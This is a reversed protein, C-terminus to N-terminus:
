DGELQFWGAVVCLVGGALFTVGIFGMMLFVLWRPGTVLVAESPDDPNYFVPVRKGVPYRRLWSEAWGVTWGGVGGFHIREGEYRTGAVTYTYIVVPVASDTDESIRAERIIGSVSPWSRSARARRWEQLLHWLFAAGVVIFVLGAGLKALDILSM